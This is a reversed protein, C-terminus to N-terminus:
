RWGKVRQGDLAAVTSVTVTGERQLFFYFRPMTSRDGTQHRPGTDRPVRTDCVHLLLATFARPVSVPFLASSRRALASPQRTNLRYWRLLWLQCGM